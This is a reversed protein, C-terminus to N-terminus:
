CSVICAINHAHCAGAQASCGVSGCGSTGDSCSLFSSAHHPIGIQEHRPVSWAQDPSVPKHHVHLKTLSTRLLTVQRAQTMSVAASAAARLCHAGLEDTACQQPVHPVGWASHQQAPNPLTTSFHSCSSHLQHKPSIYHSHEPTYHPQEGSVALCLRQRLAIFQTSRVRIHSGTKYHWLAQQDFQHLVSAVLLLEFYWSLGLLFSRLSRAQKTSDCATAGCWLCM